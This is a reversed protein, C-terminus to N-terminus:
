RESCSLRSAGVLSPRPRVRELRMQLRSRPGPFAVSRGCIQQDLATRRGGPALLVSMPRTHSCQRRKLTSGLWPLM